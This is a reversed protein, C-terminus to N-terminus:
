GAYVKKSNNRTIETEIGMNWREQNLYTSMNPIFGSLWKRDQGKQLKLHSVRRELETAEPNDKLFKKEADAKKLNRKISPYETWWEEFYKPLTINRNENRDEMHPSM